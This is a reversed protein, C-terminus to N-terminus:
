RSYWVMHTDEVVLRTDWWDKIVGAVCDVGGRGWALTHGLHGGGRNTVRSSRDTLWSGVSARLRERGMLMLGCSRWRLRRDGYIHEMSACWLSVSMTASAYDWVRTLGSVVWFAVRQFDSMMLRFWLPCTFRTNASEWLLFRGKSSPFLLIRFHVFIDGRTLLGFFDFDRGKNIFPSMLCLHPYLCFSGKVLSSGRFICLLFPTSFICSSWSYLLWFMFFARLPTTSHTCYYICTSAFVWVSWIFFIHSTYANKNLKLWNWFLLEGSFLDSPMCYAPFWSPALWPLGPSSGWVATVWWTLFM